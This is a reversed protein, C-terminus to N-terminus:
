IDGKEQYEASATGPTGVAGSEKMVIRFYKSSILFTPTVFREASAGTSTYKVEARQQLDVTDSGTVTATSQLESFQYWTIADNSLEVKYTVAGGAGGRTYSIFFCVKKYTDGAIPTPSSDYAGAAPLAASARATGTNEFAAM